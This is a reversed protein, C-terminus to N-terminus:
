AAGFPAFGTGGLGAAKEELDGALGFFGLGHQPADCGPPPHMDAKAAVWFVLVIACAIHTLGDRKEQVDIIEIQKQSTKPWV